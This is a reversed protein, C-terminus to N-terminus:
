RNQKLRKMRSELKMFITLFVRKYSFSILPFLNNWELRPFFYFCLFSANRKGLLVSNILNLLGM